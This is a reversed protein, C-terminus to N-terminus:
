PTFVQITLKHKHGLNEECEKKIPIGLKLKAKEETSLIVKHTHGFNETTYYDTIQSNLDDFTIYINHTHNLEPELLIQLQNKEKIPSCFLTLFIIFFVSIIYLINKRM